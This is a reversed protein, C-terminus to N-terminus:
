RVVQRYSWGGHGNEYCELVAPVADTGDEAGEVIGGEAFVPVDDKAFRPESEPFGLLIEDRTHGWRRYFDDEHQLDDDTADARLIPTGDSM